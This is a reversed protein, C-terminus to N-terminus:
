HTGLPTPGRELLSGQTAPITRRFHGTHTRRCTDAQHTRKMHGTHTRKMHGTHTRKMHGTHTRRWTDAQHTRKMHGGYADESDTHLQITKRFAESHQLSLGHAVQGHVNTPPLSPPLPLCPPLSARKQCQLLDRKVSYYTEKSVKLAPLCAPLCAPLSAPPLSARKQCQLLDRKVSYNTEKSVTIPRKQYQLPLCPPMCTDEEEYTSGVSTIGYIHKPCQRKISYPCAPLCAHIRRRM